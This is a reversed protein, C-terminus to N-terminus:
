LKSLLLTLLLIIFYNVICFSIRNANNKNFNRSYIGFTVLNNTHMNSFMNVHIHDNHTHDLFTWNKLPLLDPNLTSPMILNNKYNHFTAMIEINSFITESEQVSGCSSVSDNLCQIISCTRIGAKVDGYFRDGNFVVLRYKTNPDIKAIEVKFDCCFGNQCVTEIANGKLSFTQYAEFSDHKLLIHQNTGHHFPIVKTQNTSSDMSHYNNNYKTEKKIKSVEFILLEKHTATPMIAKGIGRRGLYIGSGANGFSPNNYGSALLNVNEAFSWGMQTQVATLFPVESFWATSYVFDTVQHDRTLEIAPEHFLIDFCIFTGFKVGFDTDFSVVEPITTVNFQYEKFLNTKRYRAIIKGTRDFVVNSNYYFVKDRPCPVDYCPAKEAINIVVYINNDRAACSIKKLTKSVEITNQSCPIYNASASPIITTWEGMKEREPLQITTLGDEPFVIIDTNHLSANKILEVYADSNIRLTESSNTSYISPYEVVAAIYTSSDPTSKQHSLHTCAVLLLYVIIWQQNM